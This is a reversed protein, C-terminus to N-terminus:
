SGVRVVARSSPAHAYLELRGESVSVGGVGSCVFDVLLPEDVGDDLGWERHVVVVGRRLDICFALTLAKM